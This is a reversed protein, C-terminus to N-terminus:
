LEGKRPTVKVGPRIRQLGSVVVREGSSLGQEIVRMEGEQKGITVPRYVLEDKANISYVFKRDQDSGLAREPVLVASHPLGIQVRVRVFMGPSLVKDPNDFVGRVRLTGTLPEVRNEAFNVTGEIPKSQESNDALQLFVPVITERPSQIKGAQVLKRLRLVTREEVDFYAYMPDMAVITTLTTQDQVVLNGVDIQRRSVRGSLPSTVETFTLNLKASDVAAEAAKVDAETEARDAAVQDYQETTITRDKILASARRFDADVRKRHALVKALAAEARKAEVEYPRKDIVFLVDGEKVDDGDKFNIKELYGSVRARLDVTKFADTRGTFSEYNTVTQTVPITYLVETPKTAVPQAQTRQCGAVALLLCLLALPAGNPSLHHSTASARLISNIGNSHAFRFSNREVVHNPYRVASILPFRM